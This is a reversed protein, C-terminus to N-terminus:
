PAGSAGRARRDLFALQRWLAETRVMPRGAAAAAEVPARYIADLELARGARFDLQMSPAYPTMADTDALMQDVFSADFGHGCAEAADHVEHMLAEVLARTAPDAQLEDTGADLVVSLGNYPVNWVLKKWRAVALSPAPRVAIGAADFAAVIATVRPTTGAAVGGDLHEGVTVLGYDQHVVVGPSAKASCVFCLGGLVPVGLAEAIPAEIGLGNQLALVATSPGVLPHLQSVVKANDTTKTALVIVDCPGLAAPDAAVVLDRVHADGWPSRLELGHTRLRDVDSRALFRVDAGAAALRGGYLGGVGGVGVVTWHRPWGAPLDAPSSPSKDLDVRM